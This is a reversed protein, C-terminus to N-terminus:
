EIKNFKYINIPYYLDFDEYFLQIREGQRGYFKYVCEITKKSNKPDNLEDYAPPAKLYGEPHVLSDIIM